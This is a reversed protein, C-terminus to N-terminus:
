KSETLYEINNFILSVNNFNNIKFIIKFIKNQLKRLKIIGCNNANDFIASAYLFLPFYLM